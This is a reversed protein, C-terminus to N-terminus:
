NNQHPFKANSNVTARAVADVVEGMRIEGSEPSVEKDIVRAQEVERCVAFSGTWGSRKRASIRATLGELVKRADGNLGVEVPIIKGIESAGSLAHRPLGQLPQM